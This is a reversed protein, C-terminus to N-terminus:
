NFFTPATLPIGFTLGFNWRDDAATTYHVYASVSAFSLQFIGRLGAFLRPDHWPRGLRAHGYPDSLIARYPLFADLQSRIQFMGNIVWVPEIGLVGFQHARLRPMFINSMSQTPVYSPSAALSAHIGDLLRDTTATAEIRTGLSIHGNIPFYHSLSLDFRGWQRRISNNDSFNDTTTYSGIAGQIGVRFRTGATPFDRSNQTFYDFGAIVQALKQKLQPQRSVETLYHFSNDILGGGIGIETKAHRGIATAYTIRSFYQDIALTNPDSTQFFFRERPFYKRRSAVAMIGISSPNSRLLQIRADAMAALYSQGLWTSLSIDLSNFSLTNFGGSLYLMSNASTTLYGGLALRFDNKVSAKLNLSFMGSEPNFNAQPQFDSLKGPTLARYYADRVQGISLTDAHHRSFLSQLYANQRPNGGSVTVSDFVLRPTRSRFEKRRRNVEALPRRRTVRAKISDMCSLAYRYGINYIETAKDFDLLGFRDLDMKLRMGRQPPVQYDSYQMILAELQEMMGDNLNVTSNGSSVDVGIIVTPSFDRIMVDIPFNDYIGGDFMPRGDIEIPHFVMPFSMSARVCDALDGSSFVAKDKRNVDSAVCRFPVMLRNFDGECQASAGSFLEMFAFNMPLPNILSSPLVSQPSGGKGVNVSVNAPSPDPELFYYTLDSDIKGTSWYQFPKSRILDIMEAPSYGMAYLSGVIAGMSTGTICDVPINNEELAQIVGIHAIGKAGGGSLTLGVADPIPYPSGYTPVSDASHGASAFGCLSVLFSSITARLPNM